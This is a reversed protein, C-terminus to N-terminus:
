VCLFRNSRSRETLPTINNKTMTVFEQNSHETNSLQISQILNKFDDSVKLLHVNPINTLPVKKSNQASTRVNCIACIVESLESMSIRHIFKKLCSEKLSRSIPEPWSSYSKKRSLLLGNQNSHYVDVNDRSESEESGITELEINQQQVGITEAVRKQDKIKDKNTKTRERQQKLRKQQQEETENMRSSQKQNKDKELRSQRQATTENMRSSQKRGNNKELRSQHQETTENVRRTQSRDKEKELRSQHQETTENVRRTRSRDKEKELRSQQQEKTENMRKSRTRERKKELRNQRQEQEKDNADTEMM